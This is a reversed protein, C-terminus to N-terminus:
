RVNSFNFGSDSSGRARRAPRRAKATGYARRGIATIAWYSRGDIRGGGAARGSTGRECRVEYAAVYPSADSSRTRTRKRPIESADEEAHERPPGGRMALTLRALPAPPARPQGTSETGHGLCERSQGFQSTIRKEGRAHPEAHERARVGRRASTSRARLARGCRPGGRRRPLRGRSDLEPTKRRASARRCAAGVGSRERRRSAGAPPAGISALVEYRCSSAGSARCERRPWAGAPSENSLDETRQPSTLRLM